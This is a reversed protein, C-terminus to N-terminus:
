ANLFTWFEECFSDLILFTIKSQSVTLIRAIDSSKKLLKILFPFAWAWPSFSSFDSGKNFWTWIFSYECVSGNPVSTMLASLTEISILRLPPCFVLFFSFLVFFDLYDFKLRINQWNVVLKLLTYNQNHKCSSKENYTLPFIKEFCLILVASTAITLMLCNLHIDTM